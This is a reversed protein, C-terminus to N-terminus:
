VKHTLTRLSHSHCSVMPESKLKDREIDGQEFFESAVLSAVQFIALNSFQFM